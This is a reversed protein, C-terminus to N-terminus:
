LMAELRSAADRLPPGHGFCVLEPRLEVIRQLSAENQEADVHTAQVHRHPGPRLTRPNIGLLVDGAILVRDSERWLAIHGRTHGPTDLVTFDAVEDGEGLERDVPHAPGSLLGDWFGGFPLQPFDTRIITGDRAAPADAAGVWYPVGRQTCVARSAGNHDPHAHTLAHASLPRDRLQRLISRQDLRTAADVLVDGVLYCNVAYGPLGRLVWVGDALERM